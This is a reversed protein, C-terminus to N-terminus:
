IPRVNEPPVRFILSGDKKRLTFAIHGDTHHVVASVYASIRGYRVQKGLLPHVDLISDEAKALWEAQAAPSLFGFGYPYLAGNARNHAVFLREAEQRIAHKVEYSHERV